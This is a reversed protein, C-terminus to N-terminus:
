IDRSRGQNPKVSYQDILKFYNMMAMNVKRKQVDTLQNWFDENQILLKRLNKLQM